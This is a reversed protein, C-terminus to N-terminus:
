QVTKKMFVIYDGHLLTKSHKKNMAITKVDLVIYYISLLYKNPRYCNAM